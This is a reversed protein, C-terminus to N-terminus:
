LTAHVIPLKQPPCTELPIAQPHFFDDLHCTLNLPFLGSRKSKRKSGSAKEIITNQVGAQEWGLDVLPSLLLWSTLCAVWDPSM